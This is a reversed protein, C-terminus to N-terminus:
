DGTGSRMDRGGAWESRRAEANQRTPLDPRYTVRKAAFQAVDLGLAALIVVGLTWLTSGDPARGFAALAMTGVVYLVLLGISTVIRLATTPVRDLFRLIDM